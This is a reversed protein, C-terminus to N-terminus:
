KQLIQRCLHDVFVKAGPNTIEARYYIPEPSFHSYSIEPKEKEKEVVKPM